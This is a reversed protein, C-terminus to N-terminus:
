GHHARYVQTSMFREHDKVFSECLHVTVLISFRPVKLHYTQNHLKASVSPTKTLLPLFIIKPRVWLYTAWTNQKQLLNHSFVTYRLCKGKTSPNLFNLHKLFSVSIGNHAAITERNQKHNINRNSDTEIETWLMWVKWVPQERNTQRLWSTVEVKHGNGTM